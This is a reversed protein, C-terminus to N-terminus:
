PTSDQPAVCDVKKAESTGEAPDTSVHREFHVRTIRHRDMETVELTGIDLEVRDGQQPVRGLQTYILGALTIYDAEQPFPLDLADELDSMRIAADILYGGSDTEKILRQPRTFEDDFEGIIEELVDELTIVGATGGYEDVVLAMYHSKQQFDRLLLSLPMAEPVIFPEFMIERVPRKLLVNWDEGDAIKALIEKISVFGTIEDISKKYIPFREHHVEKFRLLLDAVPAEEPVAIIDTRQVMAERAVHDDLDFVRRIMRTEQPNIAGVRESATLIIRIEEETMSFQLEKEARVIDRQGFLWLLGRAAKNMFWILWALLHYLRDIIRAVTLSLRVANRFAYVKPALEGGVVHFFSVVLFGAAYSLTHATSILAGHTSQSNVAMLAAEFLPDLMHSLTEMGVAGLALSVLTIGIQTVSYFREPKNHLRQVVRAARNGDDALQKIRSRRASTLAIESAVFFANGAVLGLIAFLKFGLSMEM